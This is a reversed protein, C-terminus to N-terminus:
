GLDVPDRDLRNRAIELEVGGIEDGIAALLTGLNIRPSLRGAVVTQSRGAWGTGAHRRVTSTQLMGAVGDAAV